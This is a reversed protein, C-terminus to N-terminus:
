SVVGRERPGCGGVKEQEALAGGLGISFLPGHFHVNTSTYREVNGGATTVEFRRITTNQAGSFSNSSFSPPLGAPPSHQQSSQAPIHECAVPIRDSDDCSDLASSGLDFAPEENERAITSVLSPQAVGNDNPQQEDKAGIPSDRHAPTIIASSYQETRRSGLRLRFFNKVKEGRDEMEGNNSPRRKFVTSARRLAPKM